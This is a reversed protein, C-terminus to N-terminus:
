NTNRIHMVRKLKAEDFNKFYRCVKFGSNPLEYQINEKDFKKNKLKQIKM